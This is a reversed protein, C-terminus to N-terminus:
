GKKKFKPKLNRFGRKFKALLQKFKSESFDDEKVYVTAVRMKLIHLCAAWLEERTMTDGVGSNKINKYSWEEMADYLADPDDHMKSMKKLMDNMAINNKINTNRDKGILAFYYDGSRVPYGLALWADPRASNSPDFHNELYDDIEAQSM